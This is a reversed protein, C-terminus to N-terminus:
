EAPMARLADTRLEATSQGRAMLWRIEIVGALALTCVNAPAATAGAEPPLVAVLAPAVVAAVVEAVEDLAAEAPLLEVVDAAMPVMEIATLPGPGLREIESAHILAM